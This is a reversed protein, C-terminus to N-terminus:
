YHAICYVGLGNQDMYSFYRQRRGNKDYAVLWLLLARVSFMSCLMRQHLGRDEPDQARVQGGGSRIWHPTPPLFSGSSRLLDAVGAPLVRVRRVLGLVFQPCLSLLRWPLGYSGDSRAAPRGVM